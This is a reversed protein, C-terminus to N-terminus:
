EWVFVVKRDKVWTAPGTGTAELKGKSVVHLRDGAVGLRVLYLKVSEGRRDGLALNYEETGRPDCHGEIRLTRAPASNLCRVAEQLLRSAETSIVFEDFDFYITALACPPSGDSGPPAVCRGDQCEHNEPCDEDTTCSGPKLCRGAQCRGQPGCDADTTCAVCRNDVCAQGEPCDEASQCRGAGDECRGDKCLQGAACDRDDRCQQCQGNVCLEGDKCDKDNNCKPYKPTCGPALLVLLALPVLLQRM